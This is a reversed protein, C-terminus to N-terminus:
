RQIVLRAIKQEAGAQLRLTYYGNPLQQTQIECRGGHLPIRSQWVPAGPANYITVTAEDSEMWGTLVTVRDQAPSPYLMATPIAGGPRLRLQAQPPTCLSDDAYLHNPNLAYYLSRALLVAEGGKLPCQEAIALLDETQKETLVAQEAIQYLFISMVTKLDAEIDTDPQIGNLWQLATTVADKRGDYLVSLLSDAFARQERVQLLLQQRAAVYNLSDRGQSHVALSDLVPVQEMESMRLREGAQVFSDLAADPVLAARIKQEAVYFKGINGQEANQIFVDIPSNPVLTVDFDKMRTYLQRQAEWLQEDPFHVFPLDGSAIAIDTSDPVTLHDMYGVGDPCTNEAPCTFSPAPLAQVSFWSPENVQIPLFQANEFPDTIFRSNDVVFPDSSTHEAQWGGTPANNLWRNGHHVQLGIADTVRLGVFHRDFVNGKLQTNADSGDALLGIDGGDMSNCSVLSSADQVLHLGRTRANATQGTLLLTENCSINGMRTAAFLGSYSQANAFTSSSELHITNESVNIGRGSVLTIGAPAYGAQHPKQYIYNNKVRYDDLSPPMFPNEYLNIGRCYYGDPSSGPHYPALKNSNSITNDAIRCHLSANQWLIIGLGTDDLRNAEIEISKSLEVRYNWWSDIMYNDFSRISAMSAEIPARCREFSTTADTGLGRQTLSASRLLSGEVYIGRGYGSDEALDMDLFRSANVVIDSNYALIGNEVRSYINRAGAFGSLNMTADHVQIGAFGRTCSSCNSAKLQPADFTNGYFPFLTPEGMGPANDPPIYLGIHNNTFTSYTIEANSGRQLLVAQTGDSIHAHKLVLRGGPQVEIAEWLNSCGFVRSHQHIKLQQSNPVAIKACAGMGINMGNGWDANEDVILTGLILLNGLGPNIPLDIDSWNVVTNAPVVAGVFQPFLFRGALLDTCSTSFDLFATCGIKDDNIAVNDVRVKISFVLSTPGEINFSPLDINQIRYINQGFSNQGFPGSFDLNDLVTFGPDLYLELTTNSQAEILGVKVQLIIESCGVLPGDSYDALIMLENPCGSQSKAIPLMLFFCLFLSVFFPARGEPFLYLYKM